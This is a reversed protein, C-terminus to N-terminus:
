PTTPVESWSEPRDMDDATAVSEELFRTETEFVPEPELTNFVEGIKIEGLRPSAVPKENVKVLEGPLPFKVTAPVVVNDARVAEVKIPAFAEFCNIEM